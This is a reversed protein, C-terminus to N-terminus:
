LTFYNPEGNVTVVLHLYAVAALKEFVVAHFCKPQKSPFHFTKTLPFFFFFEDYYPIKKCPSRVIDGVWEKAATLLLLGRDINQLQFSNLYFITFPM